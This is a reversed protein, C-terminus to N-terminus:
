TSQAYKYILDGGDLLREGNKDIRFLQVNKASDVITFVMLYKMDLKPIVAPEMKIIRLFRRRFQLFKKRMAHKRVLSQLLIAVERQRLYKSRLMYTYVFKAIYRGYHKLRREEIVRNQEEAYFKEEFSWTEHCNQCISNDSAGFKDADKAEYSCSRHIVVDCNKCLVSNYLAPRICVDCLVTTKWGGAYDSLPDPPHLNDLTRRCSFSRQALKVKALASLKKAVASKALMATMNEVKIQPLKDEIPPRSDVAELFQASWKKTRKIRNSGFAFDEM